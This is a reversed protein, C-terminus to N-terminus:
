GAVKANAVGWAKVVTTEGASLRALQTFLALVEHLEAATFQRDLLDEDEIEHDGDIVYERSAMLLSVKNAADLANQLGVSASVLQATVSKKDAAIASDKQEQQETSLAM